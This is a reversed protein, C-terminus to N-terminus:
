SCTRSGSPCSNGNVGEKGQVTVSFPCLSSQHFGLYVSVIHSGLGVDTTMCYLIPTQSFILPFFFFVADGQQEPSERIAEHMSVVVFDQLSYDASFHLIMVLKTCGPHISTCLPCEAPPLETILSYYDSAEHYQSGTRNSKGSSDEIKSGNVVGPGGTKKM